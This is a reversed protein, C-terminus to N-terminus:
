RGQQQLDLYIKWMKEKLIDLYKQYEDFAKSGYYITELEQRRYNYIINKKDEPNKNPIDPTDSLDINLENELSKITMDMEETIGVFDYRDLNQFKNNRYVFKTKSITEDLEHLLEKIDLKRRTFLFESYFMDIPNRIITFYFDSPHKKYNDFKSHARVLEIEEIKICNTSHIKSEFVGFIKQVEKEFNTEALGAAFSVFKYKTKLKQFIYTGGSKPIHDFIIM